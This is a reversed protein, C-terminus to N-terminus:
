IWIVMALDYIVCFFWWNLALQINEDDWRLNFALSFTLHIWPFIIPSIDVGNYIWFWTLTLINKDTERKLTAGGIFEGAKNKHLIKWGEMFTMKLIRWWGKFFPPKSSHSTVACEHSSHVPLAHALKSWCPVFSNM